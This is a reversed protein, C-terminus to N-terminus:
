NPDGEIWRKGKRSRPATERASGRCLCVRYVLHLFTPCNVV